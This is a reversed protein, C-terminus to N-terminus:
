IWQAAFNGLFLATILYLALPIKKGNGAALNLLTYIIFGLAMGDVISYTLPILVIILFSPFGEAFDKFNIRQVNSIMLGGVIILIPSIASDPILKIVPIFFLSVLFFVGTVISTLGRRGGATIGAASEVTSVTPSTGFFGSLVASIANAQLSREFKEPKEIMNLHGHVLGINEFVIVLTLTFTAVWFTISGIQSFSMSGMVNLYFQISFSSSEEVNLDLQGFIIALLTGAVITILFSGPVKRIFLVLAVILTLLTLFVHAKSFDGLAVFTTPSAVVIGGKQLGIFTLFLGIGITTAEKLADPISVSLWRAVPTFAVLVFLLGSIFVAGLAEQWSLGMTQVITYTFLANIGMGPVLIIPTKAWLGMILCGFFSTLVTAIVGAEMPIGADQLISANVAIIYVITFFSVAGALFERKLLKVKETSRTHNEIM